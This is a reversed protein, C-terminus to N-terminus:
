LDEDEDLTELISYLRPSPAHWSRRQSPSPHRKVKGGAARFVRVQVPSAGPHTLDSSVPVPKSLTTSSTRQPIKPSSAKEGLRAGLRDNINRTTDMSRHAHLKACYKDFFRKWRGLISTRFKFAKEEQSPQLPIPEMPLIGATYMMHQNDEDEPPLRAVFHAFPDEDIHPLPVHINSVDILHLSPPWSYRRHHHRKKSSGTHSTAHPM